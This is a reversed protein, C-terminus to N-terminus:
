QVLVSQNRFPNGGSVYSFNSSLTVGPFGITSINDTDFALYNTGSIPCGTFLLGTSTTYWIGDGTISSSGCQFDQPATAVWNRDGFVLIGPIGGNSSDTPASLTVTSGTGILLQGYNAGGGKTFFLTVGSGKVTAGAWHAGGTIIYLGPSFTVTSTTITIGNCYTGPSITATTLTATFGTHGCATFAPSAISALPDTMTAANFRPAVTVTGLLAGSQLASGTVNEAVATLTSGLNASGNRGIYLPCNANVNSLNLNVTITTLASLGTFVGCPPFLSLAQASVTQSGGNLTGMFITKVSQTITVQLADFDGSYPGSSPVQIVSVTVGNAGNTFGNVAADKQGASVWQGTNREWELEAGIAAADAASQMQLRKLELLGVDLSLGCFLIVVPMAVAFFPIM